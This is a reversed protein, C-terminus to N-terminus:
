DLLGERLARVGAETRSAAGMKDLINALHKHVTLHSIGLVTAIEKDAKGAAVLHLVTLERFTLGYGNAEQMRQEVRSEIDERVKQLAEEARKRESIDQIFGELHGTTGDPNRVARFLVNATIVDGDKRRYENEFVVWEEQGLAIDVAPPRKEPHVYLAEAVSSRNVVTMLEHPSEYGLIRAMVPNASIIKGDPTSHFIGIPASEFITRYHEESERLAEEARKRETIDEICVLVRQGEALSLLTTSVLVTVEEERSALELNAEVQYHDNGTEFTEVVISRVPCTGCSDGFGCGEPDDLSHACRLAEGGRRGIMDEASRQSFKMATYNVKHVRRERDVLIMLPPANDYIASLEAQSERLAQEARKREGLQAVLHRLQAAASGRVLFEAPPVYCVNDYVETGVAAIPHTYLADLLLAPGFARQDYQCMAVCDSCPFFENLKAEYEILRESGALGRLAWSMEGTVRLASYGEALARETEARLLAIMGDPDFVGQQLYAEQSTRITLQGRALHPEVDLGDDRLYGLVAEATHADVIYLVKEGRELGQHLFPAVVARHEREDEYLCCVHDGPELDAIRRLDHNRTM